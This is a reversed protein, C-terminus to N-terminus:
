HDDQYDVLVADTGYFTFRWNGDVRISYFNLMDGKLTHFRWDPINMDEAAIAGDLRSLQRNL